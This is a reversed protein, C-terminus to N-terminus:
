ILHFHTSPNFCKKCFSEKAYSMNKTQIINKSHYRKKFKQTINLINVIVNIFFLFITLFIKTERTHEAVTFSM